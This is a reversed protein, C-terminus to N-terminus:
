LTQEPRGEIIQARLKLMDRYHREAENWKTQGNGCGAFFFFVSVLAMGEYSMGSRFLKLTMNALFWLGGLGVGRLLIFPLRGRKRTKEWEQDWSEFDDSM